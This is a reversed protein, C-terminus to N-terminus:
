PLAEPAHRFVFASGLHLASFGRVGPSLREAAGLILYGGPALASALARHLLQKGASDFYIGVNRCFVAHFGTGPPPDALLNLRRFRVASRLADCVRAKGAPLPEFFRRRREEGLGRALEEAGYVGAEARALSSECIDTAVVELALRGAEVDDWLAMAISYPEQGTSCGASWARFPVPPQSAAVVDPVVRETLARFPADDRFFLTERTVAAEISAGPASGQEGAELRACLEAWDRCGLDRYLRGFRGQVFYEKGPRLRIGTQRFVLDAIRRFSEPDPPPVPPLSEWPDM